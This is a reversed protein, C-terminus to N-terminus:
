SFFNMILRIDNRSYGKQYCQRILEKTGEFKTDNDAKKVELSKLQAKVVMTMPNSKPLLRSFAANEGLL